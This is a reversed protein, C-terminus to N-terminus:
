AVGVERLRRGFAGLGKSSYLYLAQGIWQCWCEM